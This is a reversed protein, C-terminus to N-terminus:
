RSACPTSARAPYTHTADPTSATNAAGSAPDGFDWHWATPRYDSIDWFWLTRASSDSAEPRFNALPLNNWGLTDCPSGDLPGLRHNPFVPTNGYPYPFEIEHQRVDCALGPLNPRNIIHM